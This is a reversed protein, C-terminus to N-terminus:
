PTAQAQIHLTGQYTDPPLLKMNQGNAVGSLDIQLDFSDTRSGTKNTGGISQTVLLCGSATGTFPVVSSFPNFVGVGNIRVKVAASPIDVTNGASTHALAANANTFYGYLAVATRGPKLSAWSTTVSLPGGSFNNTTGAVLSLISQSAGSNISVTVSDPTAAMPIPGVKIQGQVQCSFALLVLTVVCLGAYWSVCCRAAGIEPPEMKSMRIM